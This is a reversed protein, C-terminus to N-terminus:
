GMRLYLVVYTEIFINQPEPLQLLVALSGVLLQMFDKRFQIITNRTGTSVFVAIM